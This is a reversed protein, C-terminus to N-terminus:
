SMKGGEAETEVVFAAEQNEEAQSATRQSQTGQHQTIVRCFKERATTYKIKDWNLGHLWDEPGTLPIDM